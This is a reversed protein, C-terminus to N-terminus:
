RKTSKAYAWEDFIKIERRKHRAKFEWHDESTKAGIEEKLYKNEREEYKEKKSSTIRM